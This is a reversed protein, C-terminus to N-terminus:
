DDDMEYDDTEPDYENEESYHREQSKLINQIEQASLESAESLGGLQYLIDDLESPSSFEANAQRLKVIVDLTQLIDSFSQESKTRKGSEYLYDVTLYVADVGYTQILRALDEDINQGHHGALDALFDVRQDTNLEPMQQVYKAIAWKVETPLNAHQNWQLVKEVSGGVIRALVPLPSM